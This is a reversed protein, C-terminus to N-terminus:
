FDQGVRNIGEGVQIVGKGGLNNGLVAALVGLFIKSWKILLGAGELLSQMANKVNTVDEKM